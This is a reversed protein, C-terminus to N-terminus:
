YGGLASYEVPSELAGESTPYISHSAVVDVLVLKLSRGISGHLAIVKHWFVLLHAHSGVTMDMEREKSPLIRSSPKIQVRSNLRQIFRQVFLMLSFSLSCVDAQQM